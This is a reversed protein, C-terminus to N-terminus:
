NLSPSSSLLIQLTQPCFRQLFCQQSDNAHGWGHTCSLSVKTSPPSVFLSSLKLLCLMSSVNSFLFSHFLTLRWVASRFLFTSTFNKSHLVFVLFISAFNGTPKQNIPNNDQLLLVLLLPLLLVPGNINYTNNQM